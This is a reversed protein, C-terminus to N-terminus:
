WTLQEVDDETADMARLAEDVLLDRRTVAAKGASMRRTAAAALARTRATTAGATRLPTAADNGRGVLPLPDAGIQLHLPGHPSPPPFIDRKRQPLTRSSTGERPENGPTPTSMALQFLWTSLNTSPLETGINNWFPVSITRMSPAEGNNNRRTRVVHTPLLDARQSRERRRM